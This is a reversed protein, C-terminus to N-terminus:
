VQSIPKYHGPNNLSQSRHRDSEVSRELYSTIKKMKYYSIPIKSKESAQIVQGFNLEDSIPTRKNSKLKKNTKM